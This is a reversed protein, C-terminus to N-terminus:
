QFTFILLIIQIHVTCVVVKAKLWYVGARLIMETTIQICVILQKSPPVFQIKILILRNGPINALSPYVVCHSTYRNNEVHMIM